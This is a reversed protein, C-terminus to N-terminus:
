TRTIHIYTHCTHVVRVGPRRIIYSNYPRIHSMYSICRVGGGTSHLLNILSSTSISNVYLVEDDVCVTTPLCMQHCIDEVFSRSSYLTTRREFRSVLQVTERCVVSVQSRMPKVRSCIEENSYTHTHKTTMRTTRSTLRCREDYINVKACWATGDTLQCHRREKM